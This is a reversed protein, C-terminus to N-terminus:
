ERAAPPLLNLAETIGHLFEVEYTTADNLKPNFETIKFYNLAWRYKNDSITEVWINIKHRQRLWMAIIACATNCFAAEANMWSEFMTPKIEYEMEFGKSKALKIMAITEELITGKM